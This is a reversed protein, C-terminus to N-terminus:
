EIEIFSNTENLYGKVIMIESNSQDNFTDIITGYKKLEDPTKALIYIQFLDLTNEKLYILAQNYKRKLEAEFDSKQSEVSFIEVGVRIGDDNFEFDPFGDKDQFVPDGGFELLYAQIAAQGRLFFVTRSKKLQHKPVIENIKVETISEKDAGLIEMLTSLKTMNFSRGGSERFFESVLEFRSYLPQNESRHYWDTKEEGSVFVVDRNNKKGIELITYWILLDGIGKDIKKFGQM